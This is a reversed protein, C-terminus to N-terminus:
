WVVNDENWGGEDFSSYIAANLVCLRDRQSGNTYWRSVPLIKVWIEAGIV